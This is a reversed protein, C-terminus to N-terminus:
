YPTGHPYRYVSLANQEAVGFENMLRIYKDPQKASSATYVYSLTLIIAIVSIHGLLTLYKYERKKDILNFTIGTLM